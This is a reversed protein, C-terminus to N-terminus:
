YTCNTSFAQNFKLVGNNWLINLYEMSFEGAEQNPAKFSDSNTLCKGDLDGPPKNWLYYDINNSPNSTPKEGLGAGNYNCWTNQSSPGNYNRSTDIICKYQKGSLTILKQCATEMEETKRYNALNLSFGKIKNNYDVQYVLNLIAQADGNDYILNWYGLDLYIQANSNEALVNIALKIYSLYDYKTGCGNNVTNSLADPEIIYIMHNNNVANKLNNIFSSYSNYDTNTGGSSELGNCDKNPIGYVIIVSTQNQCNQIANYVNNLSNTDRDTYWLPISINKLINLKDQDSQSDVLISNYKNNSIYTCLTAYSIQALIAYTYIYINFDMIIDYLFNFILDIILNNMIYM